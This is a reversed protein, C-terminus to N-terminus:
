SRLRPGSDLIARVADITDAEAPSKDPRYRKVRALRLAMGGPYRPSTQIGDFAIEVVFVPRLHVVHGARSAEHELFARTQWELLEDTMGKFTKGLMVFGGTAPDLAGLHLNSLWGERRGNGWEAALVVLDLTHATKVKLWAAGRGGAEYPADLAKAMVGEHGRALAEDLFAEAVDPDATRRHPVVLPLARGVLADFRDRQPQDIVDEGDLHLLDFLWPTLPLEARTREDTELRRGFRRMTEQFPRPRGDPLLAIVEGDLIASRLPLTRVAEVVEPVAATVDRLTRSYVRVDDGDRHVQIRAGDLKYELAAEGLRGLADELGAAPQALMPLVPRFVGLRFRALGGRGETLAAVAVPELDGALMASRRLEALPLGSARAVAEEMLGTLAGQRLEGHVLRTLFDKEADSARTFLQSLERARAGAAGRGGTEALREFAADVDRLTLPGSVAVAPADGFLSPLAPAAAEFPRSWAAALAAGGLGIRGQRLDGSLWAVAIPVDAPELRALFDALLDIKGNRAPTAAVANSGTVLAAVLM